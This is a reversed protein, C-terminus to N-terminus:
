CQSALLDSATAGSETLSKAISFLSKSGPSPYCPRPEPSSLASVRQRRALLSVLPDLGALRRGARCCRRYTLGMRLAWEREALKGKWSTEDDM